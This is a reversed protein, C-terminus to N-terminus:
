ATPAASQIPQDEEYGFEKSPITQFAARFREHNMLQLLNSLAAMALALCSGISVMMLLASVILEMFCRRDDDIVSAALLWGRVHCHGEGTALVFEAAAAYEM